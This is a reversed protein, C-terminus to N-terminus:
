SVVLLCCKFLIRELTATAQQIAAIGCTNNSANGPAPGVLRCQSLAAHSSRGVLVVDIGLAHKSDLHYQLTCGQMKVTSGQDAAEVIACSKARDQDTAGGWGV